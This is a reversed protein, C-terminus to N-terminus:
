DSHNQTRCGGAGLGFMCDGKAVERRNATTLSGCTDGSPAETSYATRVVSTDDFLRVDCVKIKGALPLPVGLGKGDALTEAVSARQDGSPFCMAYTALLWSHIASALPVFGRSSVWRLPPAVPGTQAGVLSRM